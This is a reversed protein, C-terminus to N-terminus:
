DQQHHINRRLGFTFVSHFGNLRIHRLLTRISTMMRRESFPVAHPTTTPSVWTFSMHSRIEPAVRTNCSEIQMHTDNHARLAGNEVWPLM